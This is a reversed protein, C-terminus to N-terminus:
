SCFRDLTHDVVSAKVRHEIPMWFYIKYEVNLVALYINYSFIITKPSMSKNSISPVSSSIPDVAKLQFMVTRSVLAVIPPSRWCNAVNWSWHFFLAWIRMSWTFINVANFSEKFITLFRWYRCSPCKWALRPKRKIGVCQYHFWTYRCDQNECEIMLGYEGQRCYCYVETEVTFICSLLCFEM